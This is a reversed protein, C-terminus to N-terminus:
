SYEESACNTCVFKAARAAPGVRFPGGPEPRVGGIWVKLRTGRWRGAQWSEGSPSAPGPRGASRWRRM